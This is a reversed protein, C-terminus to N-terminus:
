LGKRRWHLRVCVPTSNSKSDESPGGSSCLRARRMLTPARVHEQDSRYKHAGSYNTFYPSFYSTANATMALLPVQMFDVHVLRWCYATYALKQKGLVSTAHM